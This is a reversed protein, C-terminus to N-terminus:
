PLDLSSLVDFVYNPNGPYKKGEATFQAIREAATVRRWIATTTGPVLIPMKNADRAIQFEHLPGPIIEGDKKVVGTFIDKGAAGNYYRIVIQEFLLSNDDFTVNNFEQDFDGPNPALEPVTIPIDQLGRRARAQNFLENVNRQVKKHLNKLEGIKTQFLAKGDATNARWNWIDDQSPPPKTLQMVGVGGVDKGSWYPHGTRGFQHGGTGLAVIRSEHSAIKRLTSNTLITKLQQRVRTDALGGAPPGLIKYGTKEGSAPEGRVIARVSLKLDGGRIKGYFATPPIVLVHSGITTGISLWNDDPFVRHPGNPSQSADYHVNVDWTFFTTATPDPTVGVIRAHAKIQPMSPEPGIRYIQDAPPEDITVEIVSTRGVLRIITAGALTEIHLEATREGTAHPTFTIVFECRSGVPICAGACFYQSVAFDEPNAGTITFGYFPLGCPPDCPPFRCFVGIGYPKSESEGVSVPGFTVTDFFETAYAYGCISISSLILPLAIRRLSHTLRRHPLFPLRNKTPRQFKTGSARYPPLTEANGRYSNLFLSCWQYARSLRFRSM